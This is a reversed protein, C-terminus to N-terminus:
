HGIGLLDFDAPDTVREVYAAYPVMVPRGAHVDPTYMVWIYDFGNKDPLTLSDCIEINTENPQMEFKFTAQIKARDKSNISAGLFRVEGAAFGYFSSANHKGVLRYLTGYYNLNAEGSDVTISMEMHPSVIDCGKIEGDPTVGIARQCDPGNQNPGGFRKVKHRTEKSQTIHETVASIDITYAYATALPDAPTDGPNVPSNGPDGGPTSPLLSGIDEPAWSEYRATCSWFLGGVQQINVGRLYLIRFTTPFLTPVEAAFAVEMEDNDFSGFGVYLLDGNAADSKLDARRSTAIEMVWITPM